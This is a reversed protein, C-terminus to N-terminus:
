NGYDHMFTIPANTHEKECNRFATFYNSIKLREKLPMALYAAIQEKAVADRGYHGHVAYSLKFSTCNELAELVDTKNESCSVTFLLLLILLLKRM